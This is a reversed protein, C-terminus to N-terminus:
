GLIKSATVSGGDRFGNQCRLQQRGDWSALRLALREPLSAAFIKDQAQKVDYPVRYFTVQRPRM